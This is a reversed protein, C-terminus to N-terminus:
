LNSINELIIKQYSTSLGSEKIHKKIYAIDEQINKNYGLIKPTNSQVLARIYRAEINTPNELIYQELKKKGRNFKKLKQNPWFAYKASQMQASAFYPIALDCSNKSAKELFAEVKESSALEHYDSRILEIDSCNNNFLISFLFIYILKM